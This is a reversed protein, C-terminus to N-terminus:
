LSYRLSPLLSSTLEVVRGSACAWLQVIRPIPSCGSVMANEFAARTMIDRPKIDKELLNYMVPGIADCEELKGPYAAPMSSSGPLTMGMAEAASAMTSNSYIANAHDNENTGFLSEACTLSDVYKATYMGGCSGGEKRCSNRVVDYRKKEAAETSGEELFKGYSQFASVVDLPSPDSSCSGPQM